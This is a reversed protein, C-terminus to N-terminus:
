KHQRYPLALQRSLWSQNGPQHSWTPVSHRLKNPRSCCRHKQLRRGTPTKSGSGTPRYTLPLSRPSRCRQHLSKLYPRMINNELESPVLASNMVGVGDDDRSFRFTTIIISPNSLRYSSPLSPRTRLFSDDIITLNDKINSSRMFM